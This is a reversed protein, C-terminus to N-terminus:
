DPAPEPGQGARMPRWDAPRGEQFARIGEAPDPGYLHNLVNLEMSAQISSRAFDSGANLALKALRIGQPSRRLIEESWRDVEDDLDDDPVVANVLGMRLAEEATYRRSLYVVERARKDGVARALTQASWWAPAWGLRTGAQGFVGSTGSLTLDALVNIEHGAGICYGRVRLLIPVGCGRLLEGLRLYLRIQERKEAESRTPERVDGGVCFAREGAGTLVILGVGADGAAEELVQCLERLSQTRLANLRQPRNITITLRGGSRAVLLDALEAVRGHQWWRGRGARPGRM